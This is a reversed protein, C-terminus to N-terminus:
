PRNMACTTPLTSDSASVLSVTKFGSNTEEVGHKITSSNKAGYMSVMQPEILQHDSKRMWVKGNEAQFQMDELAYAAKKADTSGAAKMANALMRIQTNIAIFYFDIRYKEFFRQAYKEAANPQANLHWSSVQLVRDHGSGGLATPAGLLGAYYTYFNAKLGAENAAKILLTLDTGWNGTIVADAGSAKIKTIYPSFDKVKGIPHLDEGVIQIDPRRLPLMAKAANAVQHGHAYDQGLLYVKKISAEKEIAGVLAGMKMGTHSDFRFHWFSCKENTLVPDTASYNLFVVPQGPNRSNWKDLAGIIAAAAGSGGGGSAVYRIGQDIASQLVVLAEQPSSKMDFAVIELKQGLVGGEQNLTDAIARYHKFSSDGINAFPGTMPDILAIKIEANACCASCLAGIVLGARIRLPLM